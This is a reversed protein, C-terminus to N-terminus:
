PVVIVEVIRYEGENTVEEVMGVRVTKTVTSGASLLFAVHLSDVLLLLLLLLIEVVSVDVNSSNLLAAAATFAVVAM